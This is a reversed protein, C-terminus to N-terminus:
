TSSLANHGLLLTADNICLAGKYIIIYHTHHPSTVWVLCGLYSSSPIIYSASLVHPRTQSTSSWCYMGLRDINLSLNSSYTTNPSPHHLIGASLGANKCARPHSLAQSGLAIFLAIHISGQFGVRPTLSLIPNEHACDTLMLICSPLNISLLFWPHIM